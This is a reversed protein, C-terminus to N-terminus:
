SNCKSQSRVSGCRRIPHHGAAQTHTSTDSDCASYCLVHTHISEYYATFSASFVTLVTHIMIGLANLKNLVALSYHVPVVPINLNCDETIHYWTTYCVHVPVEPSDVVEM